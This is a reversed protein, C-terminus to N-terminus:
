VLAVECDNSEIRVRSGKMILMCQFDGVRFPETRQKFVGVYGLPFTDEDITIKACGFLNRSYIVGHVAEGSAISWTKKM